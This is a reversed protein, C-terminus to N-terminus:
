VKLPMIIHLYGGAKEPRLIVPSLGDNLGLNVFDDNIHSVADLIYQVNLAVESKEGTVEADVEVLGKGVQTEESYIAAKNNELKLKVNNNNERVIISLKKLGLVFDSLKVRGTTKSSTPLIKVYDPYSGEILRSVLEVGGVKFMIQNSSFHLQLNQDEVSALIKALEVATKAPVIFSIAPMEEMLDLTKEALRYSDTAVIKLTKGDFKWLTGTLVPRSINASAVFAVQEIANKIDVAVLNFVQPNELKPIMPFEDKPIGKMKTVSGSSRVEISMDETLSLEVNEDNLLSVYSSLVKAPVTLAGEKEVNADISAHLAIELNTASLLLKNGEAKILINNLVPLTNNPSVAKNVISLALALDKQSCRLKM